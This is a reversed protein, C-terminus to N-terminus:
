CGGDALKLARDILEKGGPVEKAFMEYVPESAKVFAARDAVNFQMGAAIIQKKTEEDEKAAVEYTWPQVEAGAELVAKRVDEPWANWRRLSATPFSPTYIHNTESVYKQVENLKGSTVNTYPNEQGDMVGTKLAIFLESFAMPTPNAGYAQFMRIRWTGQPVRMKMGKLDEPKVIPRLNNTIQRIGNEWIGVLRYGQREYKPALEPWVIKDGICAMHKRDKVLYPMDFLGFDPLVSSTATSPQSFDLTGLKLKQLMEGDSGLQGSHFLEMKAKGAMKANFRKVFEEASLFQVGGPPNTTGFKLELVQATAPSAMLALAAGAITTRRIWDIM